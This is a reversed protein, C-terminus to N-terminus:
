KIHYITIRSQMNYISIFESSFPLQIQFLSPQKVFIVGYKAIPRTSSLNGYHFNDCPAKCALVNKRTTSFTPFASQIENLADTLVFQLSVRTLRPRLEGNLIFRPSVDPSWRWVALPKRKILFFSLNPSSPPDIETLRSFHRLLFTTWKTCRM